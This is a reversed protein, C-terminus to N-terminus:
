RKWSYLHNSDCRQGVQLEKLSVEVSGNTGIVKEM